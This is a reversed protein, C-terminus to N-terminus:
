KPTHFKVNDSLVPAKMAKPNVNGMSKFSLSLFFILGFVNKKPKTVFFMGGWFRVNKRFCKKREKKSNACPKM